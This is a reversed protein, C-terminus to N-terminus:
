CLENHASGHTGGDGVGEVIYRLWVGVLWEVFSSEHASEAIVGKGLM